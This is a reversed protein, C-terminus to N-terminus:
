YEYSLYLSTWHQVNTWKPFSKIFDKFQTTLTEDKHIYHAVLAIEFSYQLGFNEDTEVVFTFEYPKMNNSDVGHVYNIYYVERNNWLKSYKSMTETFSWNIIKAGKLPSIVVSMHDTGALVFTYERRNRAISKGEQLRLYPRNPDSPLLPPESPIWENYFANGSYHVNYFPMGCLMETNCEDDIKVAKKMLPVIDKVPTSGHRDYTYIYYGSDAKRIEGDHRYFERKTHWITYRQESEKERYPFGVPTMAIILFVVFIVLFMGLLYKRHKFMNLIPAYFGTGLLAILCTIGAVMYEPNKDAGDYARANIPILLVYMMSGMYFYFISPLIQGLCHLYLWKNGKNVFDFIVNLLTTGFYFMTSIALIFSSRIGLGTLVALGISLITCHAHIALQVYYSDSVPSKERWKIYLYPIFANCFFFPCFYIGFILWQNSYWSMSRGCVDLLFAIFMAVGAGILLGLVQIFLAIIFELIGSRFKMGQTHKFHYVCWAVICTLVAFLVSNLITSTLQSYFILFLGLFDYFVVKDFEELDNRTRMADIESSSDLGKILAVVNDGTHQLSGKSITSMADNKTHYAYANYAHAFDYAAVHPAFKRFNTFDTDSPILGNQYIEEAVTTAFSHPVNHHYINMLWSHEATTQFMLEKGGPGVVELNILVNVKEMWRHNVIFAHSAQLGSEELGNFLFILPHRLPPKMSFLRLLELMVGVMTGDDGAGPSMPVTDFHSNLLIYNKEDSESVNRAKLKVVINQVGRYLNIVEYMKSQRLFHGDYVNNEYEIEIDDNKNAIIEQIQENIFNVALIENNPTGAVRYGIEDALYAIHDYARESIFRDSYRLEDIKQIPRPFSLMSSYGLFFLMVLVLFILVYIWIPLPDHVPFQSKILQM